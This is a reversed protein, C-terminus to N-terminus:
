NIMVMAGKITNIGSAEVNVLAGKVKTTAQGSIETQTGEIKMSANAKASVGNNAEINIDAAKIEVKSNAKLTITDSAEVNIKESKVTVTKDGQMEISKAAKVVITEQSNVEIAKSSYIKITGDSNKLNISIYNQKDTQINIEQEKANDKDTFTIINGSRTSISKTQNDSNKSSDIMKGHPLSGMVFPREPDNQSFGVMVMDNVEPTFFFGRTKEGSGYTGSHPVLVRIFPTELNETWLLRVKVRGLNDPDKVNTVVALQSEAIPKQIYPNPVVAITSPIGEFHNSYNGFGDTTHNVSIVTFKGYDTDNAKIAVTAGLAIEPSDSTAEVVVFGGATTSKIMKVSEDLEKAELFKRPSLSTTKSKFLSKSTNLAYKGNADLGAVDQGSSAISLTKHSKSLYGVHEFDVPGLKVQLDLDSIDNPYQLAVQPAQSPKGFNLKSGDYFFHEGYEAAIRRLFKFNSEHYQVCYPLANKKVPSVSVNLDNTPVAASVSRVIASLTSELFSNNSESNELLITPSYGSFILDGPSDLTNSIRIDTVLGKFVTEKKSKKLDNFSINIAKGLFDKSKDLTVAGKAELVDYNFHLEFYHHENFQQRLSLRSFPSIKKGNITIEVSIQQAM